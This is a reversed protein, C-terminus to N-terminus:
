IIGFHYWLFNHYSTLSLIHLSLGYGFYILSIKYIFPKIHKQLIHHFVKHHPKKFVTLRKQGKWWINSIQDDKDGARCSVNIPMKTSLTGKMMKIELKQNVVISGIILSSLSPCRVNLASTPHSDVIIGFSIFILILWKPQFPLILITTIM